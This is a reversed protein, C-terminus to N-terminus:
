ASSCTRRGPIAPLFAKFWNPTARPWMAKDLPPGAPPYTALPRGDPLIIDARLIQPNSKLSNLIEQARPADEFDVAAATGVTIMEAYPALFLEVRAKM